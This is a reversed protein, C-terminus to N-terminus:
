NADSIMLSGDGAWACWGMDPTHKIAIGHVNLLRGHHIM